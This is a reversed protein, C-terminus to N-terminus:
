SPLNQAGLRLNISDPVSNTSACTDDIGENTNRYSHPLMVPRRLLNVDWRFFSLFCCFVLWFSFYVFFSLCCRCFSSFVHERVTRTVVCDTKCEAPLNVRSSMKGPLPGITIIVLKAM